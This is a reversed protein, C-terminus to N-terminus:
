WRYMVTKCCDYRHSGNANILTSAKPVIGVNVTGVVCFEGNKGIQMWFLFVGTMEINFRAYTIM